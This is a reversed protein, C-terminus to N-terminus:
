RRNRVAEKITTHKIKYGQDHLFGIISKLNEIAVNIDFAILGHAQDHPLLEFPHCVLVIPNQKELENIKDVILNQHFAINVYRQVPAKDYSATMGKIAYPVEIIDRSPTGPIRYDKRSMRYPTKPSTSWDFTMNPRREVRGPLCNADQKFGNNELVAALENSMHLRGFRSTCIEPYVRKVEPIVRKAEEAMRQGDSIQEGNEDYFHAHWGIEDGSETFHKFESRQLISTVSGMRRKIDLDARPFWTIQLGPGVATELRERISSIATLYKWTQHSHIDECVDITLCILKEKTM